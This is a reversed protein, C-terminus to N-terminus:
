VELLLKDRDHHLFHPLLCAHYSSCCTLLECKLDYAHLSLSLSFSSTEPNKLSEFGDGLVM